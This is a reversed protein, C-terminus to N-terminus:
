LEKEDEFGNAQMEALKAQSQQLKKNDEELKERKLQLEETLSNIKVTGDIEMKRLKSEITSRSEQLKKMQTISQVHKTQEVSINKDIKESESKAANLKKRLDVLQSENELWKPDVRVEHLASSLQKKISDIQSQDVNGLEIDLTLKPNRAM